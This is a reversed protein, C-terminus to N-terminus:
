LIADLIRSHSGGLRKVKRTIVKMEDNDDIIAPSENHCLYKDPIRIDTDINLRRAIRCADQISRSANSNVLLRL